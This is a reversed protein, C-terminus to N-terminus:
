RTKKSNETLPSTVKTYGKAVVADLILVGVLLPSIVWYPLKSQTTLTAVAHTYISFNNVREILHSGNLEELWRPSDNDWRIQLVAHPFSTKNEESVTMLEDYINSLQPAPLRSSLINRDMTASVNSTM